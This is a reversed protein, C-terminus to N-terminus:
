KMADILQNLFGIIGNIPAKVINVLANFVNSVTEKISEFIGAM